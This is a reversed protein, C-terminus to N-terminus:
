PQEKRTYLLYLANNLLTYRAEALSNDEASLGIKDYFDMAATRLEEPGEEAMAWLLRVEEPCTLLGPEPEGAPRRGQLELVKRLRHYPYLVPFEPDSLEPLPVYPLERVPGLVSLLFGPRLHFNLFGKGGVEVREGEPLTIREALEAAIESPRRRLVGGLALATSAAFDGSGGPRPRTVSFEPCQGYLELAADRCQGYIRSRRAEIAANM